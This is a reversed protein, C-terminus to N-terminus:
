RATNNSNDCSKDLITRKTSIGKFDPAKVFSWKRMFGVALPHRGIKSEFDEKLVADLPLWWTFRPINAERELRPRGQRVIQFLGDPLGEYAPRRNSGQGVRGHGAARNGSSIM